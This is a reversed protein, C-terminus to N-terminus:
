EEGIIREFKTITPNVIYEYSEFVGMDAIRMGEYERFNGNKTDLVYHIVLGTDFSSTMHQYRGVESDNSRQGMFLFLCTITFVGILISKIDKM